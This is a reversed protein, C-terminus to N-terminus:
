LVSFYNNMEQQYLPKNRSVRYKGRKKITKQLQLSYHPFYLINNDNFYKCLSECEFISAICLEPPVNNSPPMKIKCIIPANLLKDYEEDNLPGGYEKLFEKPYAEKIEDKGGSLYYYLYLLSEQDNKNSVNSHRLYTLACNFSCFHGYTFFQENQYKYPIGITQRNQLSRTCYWCRM